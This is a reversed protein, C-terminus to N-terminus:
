PHNKLLNFIKLILLVPFQRFWQNGLTYECPSASFGHWFTKALLYCFVGEGVPKFLLPPTGLHTTHHVGLSTSCPEDTTDKDGRGRTPQVRLRHKRSPTRQSGPSHSGSWFGPQFHSRHTKPSGAGWCGGAFREARPCAIFWMPWSGASGKVFWGVRLHSLVRLLSEMDQRWVWM